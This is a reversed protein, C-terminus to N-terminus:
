HVYFLYARNHEEIYLITEFCDFRFVYAEFEEKSLIDWGARHRSKEEPVGGNDGFAACLWTLFPRTEELAFAWELIQDLPANQQGRISSRSPHVYGLRTLVDALAQPSASPHPDGNMTEIQLHTSIHTGPFVPSIPVLHLVDRTLMDSKNPRFVMHGYKTLHPDYQKSM